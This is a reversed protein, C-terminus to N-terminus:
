GRARRKPIGCRDCLKGINKLMTRTTGRPVDMAADAEEPSRAFAPACKPGKPTCLFTMTNGPKYSSVDTERIATTKKVKVFLNCICVEGIKKNELFDKCHCKTGDGKPQCPCYGDCKDIADLIANVKKATLKENFRIKYNAAQGETTNLSVATQKFVEDFFNTAIKAGSAGSKNGRLNNGTISYDRLKKGTKPDFLLMRLGPYQKMYPDGNYILDHLKVGKDKDGSYQFVFYADQKKMWNKFEDTMFVRELSVCYGCKDGNSWCCVIYKGNKMSAALTKDYDINWEGVKPTGTSRLKIFDTTTGM